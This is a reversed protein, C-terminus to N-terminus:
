PGRSAPGGLQGARPRAGQLGGRGPTVKEKGRLHFQRVVARVLVRHDHGALGECPLVAPPAVPRARVDDLAPRLAHVEGDDSAIVHVDDM